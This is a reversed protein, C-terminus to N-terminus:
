GALRPVGCKVDVAFVDAGNFRLGVMRAVPGIFDQNINEILPAVTKSLFGNNASVLEAKILNTLSTVESLVAVKGNITLSYPTAVADALDLHVPAGSSVPVVDNPPISLDANSAQGPEATGVELKVKAEITVKGTLGAVGLLNTLVGGLGLNVLDAARVEGGIVLDAIVKYSSLQSEVRVTFTSPDAGTGLGCHVDPPSILRGTGSGVEVEITGVGKPTQLVGLGPVNLTPLNIFDVGISGTLQANDATAGNTNPQGCALEAASALYVGGSFQFGVGPVQAQLNPIGLLYDGDSLRASGVIDLVNLTAQMAARDTPAVNLVNGLNIAGVSAAVNSNIMTQLASIAVGNQDSGEASLAVVMASLLDSYQITGGLLHEPSGIAPVATLQALRLDAAALGQYSALSLSVGFLENLPDLVTSDGSRVAAVFSGLRFCATSSSEAQADRAARGENTGTVGAFAFAVETRAIVSVATPVGAAMAQFGNTGMVGLDLTLDPQEDGVVDTNRALSAAAAAPLV